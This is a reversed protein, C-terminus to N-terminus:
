AQPEARPHLVERDMTVADRDLRAVRLPQAVLLAARQDAGVSQPRRQARAEAVAPRRTKACACRRARPRAPRAASALFKARRQGREPEPAMRMEHVIRHLGARSTLMTAIMRSSQCSGPQLAGPWRPSSARASRAAEGRLRARQDRHRFAPLFPRQEVPRGSPRAVCSGTVSSPSAAWGISGNRACPPAM